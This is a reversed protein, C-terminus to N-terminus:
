RASAVRAPVGLAWGSIPGFYHEVVSETCNYWRIREAILSWWVWEKSTGFIFRRTAYSKSWGINPNSSQGTTHGRSVTLSRSLQSTMYNPLYTPVLSEYSDAAMFSCLPFLRSNRGFRGYKDEWSYPTVGWFVTIKVTWVGGCQQRWLLPVETMCHKDSDFSTRVIAMNSDNVTRLKFNPLTPHGETLPKIDM